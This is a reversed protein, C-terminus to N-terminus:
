PFNCSFMGRQGWPIGHCWPSKFQLQKDFFVKQFFHKLNRLLYKQKNVVCYFKMPDYKKIHSRLCRDNEHSSFTKKYMFM